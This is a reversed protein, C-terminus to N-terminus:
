GLAAVVHSDEFCIEYGNEDFMERLSEYCLIVEENESVVDLGIRSATHLFKVKHCPDISDSLIDFANLMSAMAIASPKQAVFSTGCVSLEALFWVLETMDRRTQDAVQRPVLRMFDHCFAQPTPPHVQWDLSELVLKECAAIEEVTFHGRGLAAFHSISLKAPTPAYLKTALHLTTVATLQFSRADVKVSRTSMYRDLYSMAVAIIERDLGFHDVVKYNWDCIMTRWAGISDESVEDQEEGEALGNESPESRIALDVLTRQWDSTLYNTVKYTTTEKERRKAVRDVIEAAVDKKTLAYNYPVFAVIDGGSTAVDGGELCFQVCTECNAGADGSNEIDQSPFLKTPCVDDTKAGVVENQRAHTPRAASIVAAAEDGAVDSTGGKCRKYSPNRDYAARCGRKRAAQGTTRATQKTRSM